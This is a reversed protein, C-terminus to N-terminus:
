KKADAKAWAKDLAEQAETQAKSLSEAPTMEGALVRNCANQWAKKFEEPAPNPAVYFLNDNAQYQADIAADWKEDGTSKVYTERIKKDAVVNATLLGIFPRGASTRTEYRAKAAAMWSDVSVMSKIFRCSATKNKAKTPIAWASGTGFAIPKGTTQSVFPAFAVSADPSVENLVDIYWQEMNQAGIQNTAFANGEGFMDAADRLSKVKAWGGSPELLSVAFELAEVVKEDDLQATRGDESILDAGNAKAWLPLFEPLKPDYGNVELKGNNVVSIKEAAEKMGDWSSGDVDSIDLGHSSLLESNAMTIQVQNFEPIGYIKDAFKVQALSNPNFDDTPISEGAICEELPEIAGLSALSSIQERQAYVLDPANNAANAAMFAQVDFGGTAPAITAPSITKEAMDWRTKGVDDPDSFGMISLKAEPIEVDPGYEAKTASNGGTGGGCSALLVSAALVAAIGAYRNSKM